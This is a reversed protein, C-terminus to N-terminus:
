KEKCGVHLASHSSNNTIFKMIRTKDLNLVLNNAAFRKIMRSLVLNTVSCFDEFNRGSIVVITDDAFLIPESVANITLPLNPIYM